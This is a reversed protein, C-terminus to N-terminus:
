QDVVASRNHREKCINFITKKFPIVDLRGVPAVRISSDEFSNNQSIEDLWPLLNNNNSSQSCDTLIGKPKNFAVYVKKIENTEENYIL